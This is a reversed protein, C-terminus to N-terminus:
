KQEVVDVIGVDIYQGGTTQHCHVALTNKGPKLAARAAPTMPLPDYASVYGAVHLAPVGNIYVDADEDHHVWLQLNTYERDPLEFERRLWIDATNWTTGIVAGPTGRTGFGSRGSEWASDDFDAKTWGDGPKDLSYRWRAPETDAAPIV